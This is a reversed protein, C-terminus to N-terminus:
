SEWKKILSDIKHCLGFSPKLVLNDLQRIPMAGMSTSSIFFGDFYSDRIKQLKPAEFVIDYDLENIARIIKDRTVGELVYESAATYVSRDKIAFFNSRTGELVDNNQNVLLAEFAGQSGAERLALYNLLLSLTKYSPLFRQGFYTIVKIGEDYFSSPYTLLQAATIFYRAEFGGILNITVTAKTINDEKILKELSDDIEEIKFNHRLQIGEASYFLRKLHEEKYVVVGNLVKLSEYVGFGYHIEKDNILVTADTAKVVAGNLIAHVGVSSM